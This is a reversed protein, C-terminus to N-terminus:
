VKNYYEKWDTLIKSCIISDDWTMKPFECYYNKQEIQDSAEKITNAYITYKSKINKKFNNHNSVLEITSDKNPLWPNSIIIKGKSGYIITPKTLKKKVSVELEAEFLNHFNIILRGEDDTGRFNKKSYANIIEYTVKKNKDQFLRAVLVALSVPYCGIDNIAGGGFKKSFLRHGLKFKLIQNVKFGFSSEIKNVIGIENNLIQDIIEITQPHSRYAINELFFVKSKKLQDFILKLEDKNLAIPKECLIGKNAKAIKIILDAHRNNLTAVYIADISKSDILDEYSQFQNNKSINFKKAFIFNKNKSLSATSVLEANDVEKIANAFSHAARGLGLIGWRVM